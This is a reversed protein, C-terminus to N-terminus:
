QLYDSNILGFQHLSRRRRLIEVSYNREWIERFGRNERVGAEDFDLVYPMIVTVYRFGARFFSGRINFSSSTEEYARLLKTVQHRVSNAASEGETRDKRQKLAGFFSLDLPQFLNTTHSPFTIAAINNDGLYKLVRDSCHAKMGDMLLVAQEAGRELKERVALVYPVFVKALYKFFLKEDMYPPERRYIRADEKPRLGTAWLDNPIAQGLIIMPCLADGAASVCVLLTMHRCRRSVPHFVDNADVRSPVIVKRTMRDEWDSSGVEDLNFVLEALKGCVLTKMNTIHQNLYEQPVLFRTDEQPFSRCTKLENEHRRLFSDVWGRSVTKNYNSIVFTLFQGKTFAKNAEYQECLKQVILLEDEESFCLHRGPPSPAQPGRLVCKRVSRVNMGFIKSLDTVSLM